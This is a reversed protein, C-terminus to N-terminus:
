LPESSTGLLSRIMHERLQSMHLQADTPTDAFSHSVRLGFQILTFYEAVFRADVTAPIVSREQGRVIWREAYQVSQRQFDQLAQRILPDEEKGLLYLFVRNTMEQPDILEMMRKIIADMPRYFDPEQQQEVEHEFEADVSELRENLLWIFIEDRSRVYHFIAGKSLGSREMLDNMTIAHVNKERLLERAAQLLKQQSLQRREENKM